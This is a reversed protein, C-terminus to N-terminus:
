VIEFILVRDSHFNKAEFENWCKLIGNATFDNGMQRYVKERELSVPNIGNWTFDKAEIASIFYAYFWVAEKDKLHSYMEKPIINELIEESLEPGGCILDWKGDISHVPKNLENHIVMKDGYCNYGYLRPIEVVLVRKKINLITSKM